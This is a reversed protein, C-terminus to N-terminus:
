FPIDTDGFDDVIAPEPQRAPQPAPQAQRAPPPTAIKQTVGSWNIRDSLWGPLADRNWPDSLTFVLPDGQLEPPTQMGKAIGSIAVIDARIRGDAKTTHKITVMCAVGVLKALDFADLEEKTFDRGRWAVLDKRLSSKEHLSIKYFKSAVFPRGRNDQEYCLEFAIRVKPEPPKPNGKDDTFPVAQLGMDVISLCRAVHTGEPVTEFDGQSESPKPLIFAM